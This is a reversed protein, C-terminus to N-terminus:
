WIPASSSGTSPVGTAYASEAQGGVAFLYRGYRTKRVGVWVLVLIVAVYIGIPLGLPTSRRYLRVLDEPVSGGPRPLMWLAIGGFIFSSAYTTVIPQLRLIAVAFGNLVGAALGALLGLSAAWAFSGAGGDPAGQTVMIALAMSVIAGVSLDIGGGIVVITQGVALLILPVFAQFNRNIVRPEFLNDQVIRNIILGIILLALALLFPYQRAFRRLRTGNV